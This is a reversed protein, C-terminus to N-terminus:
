NGGRLQGADEVFVDGLVRGSGNKLIAADQEIQAARAVRHALRVAAAEELQPALLAIENAGYDSIRSRAPLRRRIVRRM